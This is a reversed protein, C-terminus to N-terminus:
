WCKNNDAKKIIAVQPSPIQIKFWTFHPCGCSHSASGSSPAGQFTSRVRDRIRPLESAQRESLRVLRSKPSRYIVGMKEWYFPIKCHLHASHTETVQLLGWEWLGGNRLGTAALMDLTQRNPHPRAPMTPDCNTRLPSLHQSFDRRCYPPHHLRGAKQAGPTFCCM